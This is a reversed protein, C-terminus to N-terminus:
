HQPTLVEINDSSHSYGSDDFKAFLHVIDLTLLLIVGDGFLANGNEHITITVIIIYNFNLL